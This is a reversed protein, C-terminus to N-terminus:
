FADTDADWDATLGVVAVEKSYPNLESDKMANAFYKQALRVHQSYYLPVLEKGCNDCDILLEDEQKHTTGCHQCRRYHTKQSM